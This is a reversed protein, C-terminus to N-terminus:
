GGPLPPAGPLDPNYIGIHPEATTAGGRDIVRLVEIAEGIDAPCGVGERGYASDGKLVWPRLTDGDRYVSVIAHEEICGGLQVVTVVLGAEDALADVEAELEALAASGSAAACEDLFDDLPEGRRLLFAADQFLQCSLPSELFVPQFDIPEGPPPPGGSNDVCAVTLASLLLLCSAAARM